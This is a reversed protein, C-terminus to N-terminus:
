IHLTIYYIVVSYFSCLYMNSLSVIFHKSIRGNSKPAIDHKLSHCGYLTPSYSPRLLHLICITEQPM